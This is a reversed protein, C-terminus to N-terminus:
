HVMLSIKSKFSSVVMNERGKNMKSMM